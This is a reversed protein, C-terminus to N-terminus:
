VHIHSFTKSAPLAMSTVSIGKDISAPNYVAKLTFECQSGPALGTLTFSTANPALVTTKELYIRGNECDYVYKCTAVVELRMATLLIEKWHVEISYEFCKFVKLKTVMSTVLYSSSM